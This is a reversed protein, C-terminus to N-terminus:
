RRSARWAWHKTCRGSDWYIGLHYWTAFGGGCMAVSAHTDNPLPLARPKWLPRGMVQRALIWASLWTPEASNTPVGFLLRCVMLPASQRSPRRTPNRKALVVAHLVVNAVYLACCALVLRLRASHSAIAAEKQMPLMM